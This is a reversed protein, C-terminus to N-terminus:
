QLVMERAEVRMMNKENLTEPNSKDKNKWLRFYIM